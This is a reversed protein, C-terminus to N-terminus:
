KISGVAPQLWSTVFSSLNPFLATLLGLLPGIGFTILKIWFDSGLEGPNTNTIHSLTPDRHMEAYVFVMVAAVTFFVVLFVGSTVPRPDFPYSAVSLTAAVFLWVIALTMTRIRGLVNQIFGLYPLCFFEEAARVYDDKPLATRKDKDASSSELILSDTESRWAPLLIRRFIVAATLAVTKQFAAVPSLDAEVTKSEVEGYQTGKYKSSYWQVFRDRAAGLEDLQEYLLPVKGDGVGTELEGFAVRSALAPSKERLLALQNELHRQSEIQRSILRYRQELVNGSM